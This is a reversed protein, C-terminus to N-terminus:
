AAPEFILNAGLTAPDAGQRVLQEVGLTRHRNTERYGLESM